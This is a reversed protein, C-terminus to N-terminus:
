AAEGSKAYAGFVRALKAAPATSLQALKTAPAQILGVLKAGTYLEPAGAEYVNIHASEHCYIAGYTNAAAGLGAQMNTLANSVRDVQESLTLKQEGLLAAKASAAEMAASAFAMKREEETLAEASKGLGAAYQATAATLDVKIGLNDLIQPSQRALATTLDM